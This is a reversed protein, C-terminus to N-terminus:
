SMDVDILVRRLRGSFSFPPAYDRSVPAHRNEGCRVGANAAYIPWMKPLAIEALTSNDISLLAIGAEEGTKEIQLTLVHRGAPVAASHGRYVANRTYVYVFNMRGDQMYWEYGCSSDGAAVIVGSATDTLLEVEARFTSNWSFIDPASLRDLRTMGPFLVYTARPPPVSARYLSLTDDELPLVDYRKAEELWRAKLAELREPYEEALNTSESFDQAAHFLEWRDNEYDEGATHRSVAKWGDVWIARDGLTEFYQV